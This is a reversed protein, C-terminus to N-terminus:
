SSFQETLNVCENKGNKANAALSETGQPGDGTRKHTAIGDLWKRHFCVFEQLIQGAFFRAIEFLDIRLPKRLMKGDDHIAIAAPRLAAM